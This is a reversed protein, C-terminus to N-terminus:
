FPSKTAQAYRCLSKRTPKILAKALKSSNVYYHLLCLSNVNKINDFFFFCSNNEKKKKCQLVASENNYFINPQIYTKMTVYCSFGNSSRTIKNKRPCFGLLLVIKPIAFCKKKRKKFALSMFALRFYCWLCNGLSDRSFKM